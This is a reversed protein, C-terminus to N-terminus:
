GEFFFHLQLRDNAVSFVPICETPSAPMRSHPDEPQADARVDDDAFLQASSSRPMEPPWFFRRRRAVPERASREGRGQAEIQRAESRM